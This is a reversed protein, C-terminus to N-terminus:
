IGHAVAAGSGARPRPEDVDRGLDRLDRRHTRQGGLAGLGVGLAADEDRRRAWAHDVRRRRGQPPVDAIRGRRGLRGDRQESILARDVGLTEVTITAARLLLEDFPVDSLAVRGLDLVAERHKAQVEARAAVKGTEAATSLLGAVPIFALAVAITRSWRGGANRLISM